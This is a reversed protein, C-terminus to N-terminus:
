SPPLRVVAGGGVPRGAIEHREDTHNFLWIGDPTRVAEVGDPLDPLVPAAGAAACVEDLLRVRAADDLACSVYYAVGAGHARQTVAPRGDPYRALVAAGPVTLHETWGTATDGTDLGVAVGAPLPDFEEVRVGLLERLAGPYGGCRVRLHEDVIGSLYTVVLHGGEHVYEDLRRASEDSLLYAAPVVLVRYGALAAAPPVVDVHHGRRWLTRHWGEVIGRYDVPMPLHSAGVAWGCLEDFWVAVEGSGVVDARAAGSGAGALGPGAPQDTLFPVKKYASRYSPARGEAALHNGLARAEAFVRTTSGPHAILGTHWQEAGGASARWQFYMAGQSGRAIHALAIRALMGPPKRRQVGDETVHAPAHEMLLWRGGHGAAASWGRAADAAFASQAPAGDLSSPYHDIAVLDVEHSWRAHDVPVWGGLVFNTTVQAQPAVQKIADRQETYAALMRDSLFRRYDLEQAPNGLYQTARPPLVQAWDAYRQSWFDTTWADNLVDLTGHRERLWGRFARACHDCFCWTGYENHVHWLRVAPHRAYREALASAIRLSVARYAPANVCYTDRSGHVLRVGDRRMTLANPHAQTFWPPPSATPTALVADIGHEHLGDLVRDLWGFDYAGPTPELRSWSFVGVTAATVRAERMLALDEAWVQEPWQEPNWDAGHFFSKTPM